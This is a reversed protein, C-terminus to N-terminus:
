FIYLICYQYQKVFISCYQQYQLTFYVCTDYTYWLFPSSFSHLALQFVFLAVHEFRLSSCMSLIEHSGLLNVTDWYFPHSFTLIMMIKSYMYVHQVCTRHAMAMGYSLCIKLKFPKSSSIGKKSVSM